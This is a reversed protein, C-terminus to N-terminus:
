KLNLHIDKTMQNTSLTNRMMLFKRNKFLNTDTVSAPNNILVNLIQYQSKNCGTLMALSSIVVLPLISNKLMKVKSSKKQNPNLKSPENIEREDNATRLM